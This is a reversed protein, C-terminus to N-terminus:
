TIRQGRIDLRVLESKGSVVRKQDDFTWAEDEYVDVRYFLIYFRARSFEAVPDASLMGGGQALKLASTHFDRVDKAVQESVAERGHAISKLAAIDTPTLNHERGQAALQEARKAVM